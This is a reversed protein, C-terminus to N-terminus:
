RVRSNEGSAPRRGRRRARSAPIVPREAAEVGDDAVRGPVADLQLLDFPEGGARGSQRKGRGCGGATAANFLQAILAIRQGGVEVGGLQAGVAEALQDAGAAVVRQEAAAVDVEIREEDLAGHVQDLGVADDAQEGGGADVGVLGGGAEEFRDGGASADAAQEVKLVALDEEGVNM